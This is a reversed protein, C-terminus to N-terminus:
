PREFVYVAGADAASNDTEDGNITTANGDERYAAIVVNQASLAIANAFSDSSASNSSKIYNKFSWTTGSRTYIYAAGSNFSSNDSSDGDFGTANSDENPAGVALVDGYIDVSSGFGDAGETNSAKIYAQQSWTSGTRTFVYVAGASGASNDAQNGGVGTSSSAENAAGVVLTDNDLALFQGFLDNAETNSAKIYAQQTWAGSFHFVYVAGANLASNDAQAGGVGTANSDENRAGVAITTGSIDLGKGFRDGAEANSATLKAEQSWSTGTRKFVYTSGSTTGADADNPSTVVVRQGSAAVNEGFADGAGPDGAVLKAEQTWTTGNRIFIYAAGANVAASDDGLSGVVAIDGTENLDVSVGFFDNATAINPKLYAELVWTDNSRKFIYAAGSGLTSNDAQNGGVGTANSDESIAGIIIRDGATAVSDKGFNDGAETNTAKMYAGVTFDNLEWSFLGISCHFISSANNLSANIALTNEGPSLDVTTEGIILPPSLIAKQANSINNFNPCAGTSQAGIVKFTRGTGVPVLLNLEQGATRFGDSLSPSLVREGGAYFCSQGGSPIDPAEVIVAFCNLNGAVTPVSQGWGGPLARTTIAENNSIFNIKVQAFDQHNDGCSALLALLFFFYFPNM